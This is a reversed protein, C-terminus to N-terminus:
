AMAHREERWHSVGNRRNLAQGENWGIEYRALLAYTRSRGGGNLELGPWDAPPLRNHRANFWGECYADQIMDARESQSYDHFSKAM